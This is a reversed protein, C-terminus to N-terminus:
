SGGILQGELIWTADVCDVALIREEIDEVIEAVGGKAIDEVFDEVLLGGEADDDLLVDEAREAIVEGQETTTLKTHVRVPNAM